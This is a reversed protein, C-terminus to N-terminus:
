TYLLRRYVNLLKLGISDWSFQQAYRSITKRDWSKELALILVRALDDSDAPKCVYGYDNSQIIEPIGGVSTGIFPTGCGLCEFMVTPNGESLSPLVFIDASNIWYSIQGEPVFGLLIVHDGLNRHHIQAELNARKPGFGGIYCVVSPYKKVIQEMAEILYYYGKREILPSLSFIMKTGQSINLIKRCEHIDRPHFASSFGNAITFTYQNYRLLLPLEKKNVRILADAKEWAGTIRPDKMAIEENLWVSDEHLTAIVPVHYEEKLRVAIAASPWTFHAHIIDFHLNERKILRRVASFRFDFLMKQRYNMFPISLSRPIFVCRPYFVKVNSYQYNSCYRDNPQLRLSFLVPCIVIIEKFYLKLPELQSKVYISGIYRNNKDPFDPTIVLLTLDRTDDAQGQLSNQGTISM